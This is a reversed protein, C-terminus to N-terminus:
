DHSKKDFKSESGNWLRAINSRHRVFLLIALLLTIAFIIRDSLFWAAIPLSVAMCLSALSVYRKWYFVALWVTVGVLIVLPCLALMGGITTAVGKGGKFHIFASASHGALAACLGIVGLLTAHPGCRFFLIPWGAAAFGKLADLVFCVNGATKGVSRKVNTAGPNGSGVKLIDIGHRRSIIVAFPIAGLFYGVIAVIIIEFTLM